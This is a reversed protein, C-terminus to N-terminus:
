RHFFALGVGPLERSAVGAGHERPDKTKIVGSYLDLERRLSPMFKFLDNGIKRVYEEDGIISQAPDILEPLCLLLFSHVLTFLLSTATIERRNCLKKGFVIHYLKQQVVREARPPRRTMWAAREDFLEVVETESLVTRWGRSRKGAPGLARCFYGHHVRATAGPM